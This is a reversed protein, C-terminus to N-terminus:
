RDAEAGAARGSIEIIMDLKIKTVKGRKEIQSDGIGARQDARYPTGIGSQAHQRM